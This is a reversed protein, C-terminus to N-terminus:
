PRKTLTIGLRRIARGMTSPNLTTGYTANWQATHNALRADPAVAVEDYPFEPEQVQVMRRM